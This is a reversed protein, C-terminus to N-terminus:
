LPTRSMVIISEHSHLRSSSIQAYSTRWVSGRGDPLPVGLQAAFLHPLARVGWIAVLLGAAAGALALLMSARSRSVSLHGDALRSRSYFVELVAFTPSVNRRQQDGGA